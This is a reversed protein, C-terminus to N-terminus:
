RRRWEARPEGSIGERAGAPVDLPTLPAATLEHEAAELMERVAKVAAQETKTRGGVHDLLSKARLLYSIAQEHSM